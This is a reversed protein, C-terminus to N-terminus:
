ETSCAESGMYNIKSVDDKDGLLGNASIKLVCARWAKTDRHVKVKREVVYIISPHTLTKCGKLLIETVELRNRM